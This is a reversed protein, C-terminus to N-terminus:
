VPPRALADAADALRATAFGLDDRLGDALDSAVDAAHRREEELVRRAEDLLAARTASLARREGATVPLLAGAVAGALIGLVGFLIANDPEAKDEAHVRGEASRARFVAERAAAVRDQAAASLGELGKRFSRALGAARAAATQGPAVALLAEQLWDDDGGVAEVVPEEPNVPGGEDEWRSLAEFKSGALTPDSAAEQPDHRRGLALWALGAVTMATAAPNARAVAGAGRLAPLARRQLLAVGDSLLADASFRHRLANVSAVLAARDRAVNADIQDAHDSM